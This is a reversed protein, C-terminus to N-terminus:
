SDVERELESLVDNGHDFDAVSVLKSLDIPKVEPPPEYARLFDEATVPSIGHIQRLYAIRKGIRERAFGDIQPLPVEVQGNREDNLLMCVGVEGLSFSAQPYIANLVMAEVHRHEAENTVQDWILFQFGAESWHSGYASILKNRSNVFRWLRALAGGNDTVTLTMLENPLPDRFGVAVRLAALEEAIM